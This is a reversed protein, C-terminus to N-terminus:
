RGFQFYFTTFFRKLNWQNYFYSLFKFQFLDYMFEQIIGNTIVGALAGSVIKVELKAPLKKTKKKVFATVAFTKKGQGRIEDVSIAHAGLGALFDSHKDRALNATKESAM